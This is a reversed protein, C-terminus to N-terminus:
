HGKSGLLQLIEKFREPIPARFTQLTETTKLVISVKYAHLMMGADAFLKDARSYVPDGLVPTGISKLHVRIQHTRGTKPMAKILSYDGFSRLVKYGTFATKGGHETTTFRKRHKSDRIISTDIAGTLPYPTGKVIAIYEKNVKRNRFQKAFFELASVHKAILVLGSTEKDIRHIIGPRFTQEQFNKEFRERESNGFYHLVGQILTQHYNGNAPHVVIGQAKNIVILDQDEFRIDLPLPEPELQIPEPHKYLVDITDGATVQKSPKSETHNIVLSLIRHKLQSRSFLCATESLYKDARMAVHEPLDVTVSIHESEISEDDIRNKM